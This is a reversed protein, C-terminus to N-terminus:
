AILGLNQRYEMPSLYGLSEKIRAQNYWRIYYDVEHMFEELSSETWKRPYFMENKLRGWFGECAANDPSCGKKSMSRTLLATEMCQIWGPWQYYCGWDTQVITHDGPGLQRIADELVRNVLNATLNPELTWAAILGDFCDVLASLYVKGAAISLETINTM